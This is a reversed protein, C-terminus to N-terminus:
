FYYVFSISLEIRHFIGDVPFVTANPDTSEKPLRYRVARTMSDRVDIRFGWVRNVRVSVGGGANFSVIKENRLKGIGAISPNIAQNVASQPLTFITGGVGATLYPMAKRDAGVGGPYWLANVCIQQVKNTFAFEGGPTVLKTANTGYSYILDQGWHGSDAGFRVGGFAGKSWEHTGKVPTSTQPVTIEFDKNQPISGGGFAEFRYKWQAIAPTAVLLAAAVIAAHLAFRKM